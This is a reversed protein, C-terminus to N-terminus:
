PITIERSLHISGGVAAKIQYTGSVSPIEIEIKDSTRVSGDPHTVQWHHILQGGDEQYVETKLVLALNSEGRASVTDVIRGLAEVKQIVQLVHAPPTVVSGGPFFAPDLAVGRWDCHIHDTYLQYFSAGHKICYDALEQYTFGAVAFDVGDGFTHRSWKAAGDLQQNYGPSRYGSTIRVPRGLDARMAELHLLTRPSFLGYFGRRSGDAVLEGRVFNPSLLTTNPINRLELLRDPAEYQRKDFSAPFSPDTNPDSYQYLSNQERLQSRELTSFCISQNKGPFCASTPRTAGKGGSIEQALSSSNRANLPGCHVLGIASLFLLIRLVM